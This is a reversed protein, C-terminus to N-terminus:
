LGTPSELEAPVPCAPGPDTPGVSGVREGRGCHPEQGCMGCSSM